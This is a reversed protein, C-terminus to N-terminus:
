IKDKEKIKVFIFGFISGFIGGVIHAFQSIKDNAISNVVEHGFYLCAVLIFTLPITGLRFNTMSSLLILMFVVGSAGLLGTDFFIVNLIGTVMATLLIMILLDSSGYKEEVLPGLLLIFIFNGMLHEWSVHGIVHLFIRLYDFVDTFNFYPAVVFFTYTIEDGALRIVVAILTFTLIVPSNYTIRM